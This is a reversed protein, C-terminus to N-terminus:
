MAVLTRLKGPNFGLCEFNLSESTIIPLTTKGQERLKPRLDEKDVDIEEFSIGKDALFKKTMKCGPCNEASYVKLDAM